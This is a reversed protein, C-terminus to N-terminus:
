ERVLLVNMRATAITKTEDDQWAWMEVNAIRKGLRKVTAAAHTDVATGGRLFDISMNVPKVRVGAGGDEGLKLAEGIVAMGACELLGAIAGGHLFGPRGLVDDGFPMVFRLAGDVRRPELRLLEAYPPMPNM